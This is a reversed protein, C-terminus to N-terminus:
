SMAEVLRTNKRAAERKLEGLLQAANQVGHVHIPGTITVGGGGGGIMPGMRPFDPARQGQRMKRLMDQSLVYEGRHVVGAIQGHPGDGTYGGHQFEPIARGGLTRGSSTTTGASGETFSSTITVTWPKSTMTNLRTEVDVIERVFSEKWGRVQLTSLDVWATMYSEMNQWRQEAHETLSDYSDKLPQLPDEEQQPGFVFEQFRSIGEQVTNTVQTIDDLRIQGSALREILQVYQELGRADTPIRVLRDVWSWDERALLGMQVAFDAADFEGRALAEAAANARLAFIESQANAEGTALAMYRMAEESKEASVGYERLAEGAKQYLSSDFATPAIGWIEDLSKGARQAEASLKSAAETIRELSRATKEAREEAREEALGMARGWIGGSEATPRWATRQMEALTSEWDIGGGPRMGAAWRQFREIEQQQQRQAESFLLGFTGARRQREMFNFTPAMAGWNWTQQRANWAMRSLVQGPSYRSIDPFSYPIPTHLEIYRQREMEAQRTVVRMYYYHIDEPTMRQFPGGRAPFDVAWGRLGPQTMFQNRSDEVVKPLTLEDLTAQAINVVVTWPESTLLVLADYLDLAAGAGTELAENVTKGFREKFERSRANLQDQKLTVNAMGEGLKDAQEKLGEIVAEQFAAERSLGPMARQLEEMRRKVQDVSLGLQDLRMFSMNALTLQIQSLANETGGLQPNAAAVVSLMRAFEGAAEASDALGFKMLMYAQAAAEGETVTGRMATQIAVTWREAEEASGAYVRLAYASREAQAGMRAWEQATGLVQQFAGYVIKASNGLYFLNQAMDLVSRSGRSGLRETAQNASDMGRAYERLQKSFDDKVSLTITRRRDM